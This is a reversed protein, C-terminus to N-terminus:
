RWRKARSEEPIINNELLVHYYSHGSAAAPECPRIVILELSSIGAPLSAVGMEVMHVHWNEHLIRTPEAPDYAWQMSPYLSYHNALGPWMIIRLALFPIGLSVSVLYFPLSMKWWLFHNTPLYGTHEVRSTYIIHAYSRYFQLQGNSCGSIGWTPVPPLHYIEINRWHAWCSFCVKLSGDLFGIM